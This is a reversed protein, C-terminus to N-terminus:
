IAIEAPPNALTRLVQNQLTQATGTLAAATDISPAWTQPDLGAEVFTMDFTCFGGFREEEM